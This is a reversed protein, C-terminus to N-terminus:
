DNGYNTENYSNNPFVHASVPSEMEIINPYIDKTLRVYGETASLSKHGLFVSLIPLACYIDLGNEVMKMLSHVAATHRIDHIRPGYGDARRPIECQELIESFWKGLTTKGLPSGITSVFFSATPANIGKIPMRDRYVKYQDLVGFLSPNIPILRETKNKTQKLLINRRVLDVNENKLYRAEGVRMGTSYLLRIIAPVAILTSIMCRNQLRLKDACKFIHEIQECSFIYPIFQPCNKKPLRHIYCEQGLHSLYRCFQRLISHKDYLTRAKDNVRTKNWSIIQERTIYLETAGTAM